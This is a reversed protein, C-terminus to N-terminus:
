RLPESYVQQQYAALRFKPREIRLLESLVM